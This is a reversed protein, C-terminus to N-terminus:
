KQKRVVKKSPVKMDLRLLLPYIPFYIVVGIILDTLVFCGTKNGCFSSYAISAAILPGFFLWAILLANTLFKANSSIKNHCNPCKFEDEVRFFPIKKDCGPCKVMCKEKITALTARIFRLPIRAAKM